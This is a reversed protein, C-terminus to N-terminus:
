GVFYTPYEHQDPNAAAAASLHEVAGEHDGDELSRLGEIYHGVDKGLGVFDDLSLGFNLIYEAADGPHYILKKGTQIAEKELKEPLIVPTLRYGYGDISFAEYNGDRDSRARDGLLRQWESERRITDLLPVLERPTDASVPGGLSLYPGSGRADPPDAFDALADRRASGASESGHAQGGGARVVMVIIVVVVAIVLLIIM